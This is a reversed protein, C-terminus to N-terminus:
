YNMSSHQYARLNDCLHRTSIIKVLCFCGWINQMVVHIENLNKIKSEYQLM